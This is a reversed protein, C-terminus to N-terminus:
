EARQKTAVFKHQWKDHEKNHCLQSINCCVKGVKQEINKVVHSRNNRCKKHQKGQTKDRFNHFKDRCEFNGVKDM